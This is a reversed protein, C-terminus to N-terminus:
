HLNGNVKFIAVEENIFVPSFLPDNLFKSFVDIETKDPNDDPKISLVIYSVNRSLLEARYDFNNWGYDKSMRDMASNLNNSVIPLFYSDIAPQNAYYSPNNSESYAGAFLEIQGKDKQGLFYTIDITKVVDGIKPIWTSEPTTSFILQGLSKTGLDVLGVTVLDNNYNVQIGNTDVAM